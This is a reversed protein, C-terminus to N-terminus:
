GPLTTQRPTRNQSVLRKVERVLDEPETEAKRLWADVVAGEGPLSSFGSLMIIPTGPRLRKMDEAVATGNKASLWYDMVVLDIKEAEFYRWRRRHRAPVSCRSDRLLSCVGEETRAPVAEDEVCLVKKSNGEAGSKATRALVEAVTSVIREPHIGKLLHSDVAQLM